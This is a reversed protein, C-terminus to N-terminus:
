SSFALQKGLKWRKSTLWRPSITPQSPADAWVWWGPQMGQDLEELFVRDNQGIVAEVGGVSIRWVEFEPWAAVSVVLRDDFGYNRHEGRGTMIYDVWNHDM